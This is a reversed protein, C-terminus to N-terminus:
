CFTMAPPTPGKAEVNCLQWAEPTEQPAGGPITTEHGRWLAEAEVGVRIEEPGVAPDMRDVTMPDRHGAADRDVQDAVGGQKGTEDGSETGDGAETIGKTQNM